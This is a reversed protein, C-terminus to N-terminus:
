EAVKEVVMRGDAQTVRVSDGMIWGLERAVWRPITVTLTHGSERLLYIKDHKQYQQPRVTKSYDRM